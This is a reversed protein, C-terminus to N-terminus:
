QEGALVTQAKILGNVLNDIEAKTNYFALSARVCGNLKFRAMLPMTCHHGSRVAITQAHQLITRALETYRELDM